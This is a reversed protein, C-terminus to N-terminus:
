WKVTERHIGFVSRLADSIEGLTCDSEVCAIIPEILNASGRAAQELDALAIRTKNSDRRQKFRHLREIQADGAAP